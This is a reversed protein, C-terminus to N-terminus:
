LARRQWDPEADANWPLTEYKGTAVDIVIQDGEAAANYNLLVKTSDPSWAWHATDTIRPGITRGPGSGDAPFVTVQNGGSPGDPPVRWMLVSTGDPSPAMEGEWWCCAPGSANFRHLNSGDANMVWAQITQAADVYRNFYIRTGDPSYVPFNLDQNNDFNEGPINGPALLRVDSGDAGMRYIGFKGNVFGRVMLEDGTPPRVLIWDLELGKALEQPSGGDVPIRTLRDVGYAGQAVYLSRSNAAWTVARIGVLPETNLAHLSSGDPSVVMIDEGGPCDEGPKPCRAAARLFEIRTGDPAFAPIYDNSPGGVLLRGTGTTPDGVLIDGNANYPILGNRAPGFPPPVRGQGGLYVALLAVLLLLVLVAAVLPRWPVRAVPARLIAINVPLWRELSAWAPRQPTRATRGLIDTLYDSRGTGAVDSLAAPLEREFRDITIM